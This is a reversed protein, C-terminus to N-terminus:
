VVSILQKLVKLFYEVEESTNYLYFSVRISAEYGLRKALPQACHHGARVCIGYRDFYAAVDHAHMGDVVFSVMHGSEKLQDVPGLIRVRKLKQLGVILQKNLAICYKNIEHLDNRALFDLAAGFGIVQAIPQTGAEFCTPAHLFTTRDIDVEFVMGGGMVYPTCEKQVSRSMYLVGVGTPGLMKHASFAYFDCGLLQVDVAEFPVAQAGDVLVRAGVKKAAKVISQIDTYSGLANSVHAIAVLKTKATILDQLSSLDLLGDRDVPIIKLLAGKRQALQQWPVFNSHHELQSVVIEDGATVHKEAWAYVVTTISGTTGSTFVIESSSQANLFRAVKFRVFEYSETAKEGLKYLGRNTNANSKTYFQAIADIVSQPKQSTSANDFYILPQERKLSFIPFHKRLGQM